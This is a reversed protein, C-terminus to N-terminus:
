KKLYDRDWIPDLLEALQRDFDELGKQYKPDKLAQEANQDIPKVEYKELMKRFEAHHDRIPCPRLLNGNAHNGLIRLGPNYNQQWSRIEAFFPETWVDNLTRGQAYIDKINVPSYPMFACPSVNGNWDLYLYGGRGGAAICGDALVGSNWFDALFYHKQGVIEWMRKMLWLRQEPKLMPKLSKARGIPMYHFVWAYLASNKEFFFDLTEDSLIEQYNDQTATLSIGFPVQAQTLRQMAAIVQDFVGTGRRKDTSEKLGEVSIAPTFNGIAGLKKAVSDSILTGNTFMLFFCQPNKEALEVVGQGNNQYALPEGGSFVFFRTGWLQRAEQVVQELLAWPLKEGALSSDAYCGSCHLNCSKTPSLVLLSPPIAQYQAQFAKKAENEQHAFLIENTIVKFTGQRTAPGLLNRALARDVTHLIALAMDRRHQVVIEPQLGERVTQEYKSQIQKDYAEVFAQRLPSIKGLTKAGLDLTNVVGSIALSQKSMGM